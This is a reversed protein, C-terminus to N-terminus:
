KKEEKPTFLSILVGWSGWLWEGWSSISIHQKEVDYKQTIQRGYEDKNPQKFFM